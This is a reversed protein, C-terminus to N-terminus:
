PMVNGGSDDALRRAILVASTTGLYEIPEFRLIEWQDDRLLAPLNLPRSGGTIRPDLVFLRNWIATVARGPWSRGPAFAVLALLGDDALLRHAEDLWTAIDAPHLLDLVYTSVVRDFRGIPEDLAVRGNTLRVRTRDAWPRLRRRAVEVVSPSVDVGLYRARSPLHHALLRRALRGTGCGFEFVASAQGFAGHEILSSIVRRDYLTQADQLIGVRNYLSRAEVISLTRPNMAHLAGHLKKGSFAVVSPIPEGVQDRANGPAPSTRGHLSSPADQARAVARGGGPDHEDGFSRAAESALHATDGERQVLGAAGELPKEGGRREAAVLDEDGVGHEAVRAVGSPVVSRGARLLKFVAGFVEGFLDSEDGGREDDGEADGRQPREVSDLRVSQDKAGIDSARTRPLTASQNRQIVRSRLGHDVAGKRALDFIIDGETM